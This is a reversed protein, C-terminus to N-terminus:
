DICAICSSGKKKTMQLTYPECHSCYCRGQTLFSFPTAPDSACFIFSQSILKYPRTRFARPHPISATRTCALIELIYVLRPKIQCISLGPDPPLTKSCPFAFSIRVKWFFFFVTPSRHFCLSSLGGYVNRGVQGLNSSAPDGTESRYEINLTRVCIPVGVLSQSDLYQM